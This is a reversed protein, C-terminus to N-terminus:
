RLKWSATFPSSGVLRSAIYSAMHTYAKASESGAKSSGMSVM